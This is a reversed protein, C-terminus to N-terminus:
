QLYSFADPVGKKELIKKLKESQQKDSFPGLHIVYRANIEEIQIDSDLNLRMLKDYLANAKESSQFAGVQLYYQAEEPPSNLATVDVSATGKPLLGLKVAAGYSLDILRDKHFPGRDNIKVIVERGNELNKVRAYTPLPLTKHAATLAYMDYVEGSSTREKHFKTGYWSATGKKHYGESSTLVDYTKGKVEYSGPNGYHSLPEDVPLVEQFVKPEPGQPAGDKSTVASVETQYSALALCLWLARKPM